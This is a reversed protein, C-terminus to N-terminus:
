SGGANDTAMLAVSVTGTNWGAANPTPSPQAVTVPPTTEALAFTATLTYPQDSWYNNNNVVLVRYEGLETPGFDLDTIDLSNPGGGAGRLSYSANADYVYLTLQNSTNAVWTGGGAPGDLHLSLRGPQSVSLKYWDQSDGSFDFSFVGT